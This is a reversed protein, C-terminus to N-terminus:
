GIVKIFNRTNVIESILPSQEHITISIFEYNLILIMFGAETM